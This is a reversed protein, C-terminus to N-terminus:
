YMPPCVINCALKGSDRATQENCPSLRPHIEVFRRRHVTGRVRCYWNSGASPGDTGRFQLCVCVALSLESWRWSNTVVSGHSKRMTARVIQVVRAEAGSWRTRAIISVRFTGVVCASTRALAHLEPAPENTNMASRRSSNSIAVTLSSQDFENKPSPSTSIPHIVNRPKEFKM